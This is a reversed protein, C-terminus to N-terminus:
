RRRRGNRVYELFDILFGIPLYLIGLVLILQLWFM